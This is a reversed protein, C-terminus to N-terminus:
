AKNKENKKKSNNGISKICRSPYFIYRAVYGRSRLPRRFEIVVTNLEPPQQWYDDLLESEALNMENDNRNIVVNIKMM